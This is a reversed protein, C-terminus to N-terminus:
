RSTSWVWRSVMAEPSIDHLGINSMSAAQLQGVGMKRVMDGETGQTGGAYIKFKM